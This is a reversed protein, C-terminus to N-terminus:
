RTGGREAHDSDSGPDIEDWGQIVVRGGAITPVLKEDRATKGTVVGAKFGEIDTRTVESAKLQGLLPKVHADIRSRDTSLTRPKKPTGKRGLVLGAEAATM